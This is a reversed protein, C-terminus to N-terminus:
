KKRFILVVHGMLARWDNKILLRDYWTGVKNLIPFHYLYSYIAPFRKEELLELGAEEMFSILNKISRYAYQIPHASDHNPERFLQHFSTPTIKALLFEPAQPNSLSLVIQGGPKIIRAMERAAAGPDIIHELVFNAFAVDYSGPALPKLNELPCIFSQGLFTLSQDNVACDTIDTRDCIFDLGAQQVSKEVVVSKAAGLNIIRTPRSILGLIKKLAAILYKEAENQM